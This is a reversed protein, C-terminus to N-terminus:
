RPIRSRDNLILLMTNMMSFTWHSCLLDQVEPLALRTVALLRTAWVLLRGKLSWEAFAALFALDDSVVVVTVCWSVQRLRRAQDVVHPLQTLTMNADQGDAAVEWVSIGSPAVLKNTIIAIFHSSPISLAQHVIIVSCSPQSTAELVAGPPWYNRSIYKFTEQPILPSSATVLRIFIVVQGLVAVTRSAAATRSVAVTRSVAATRSVVVTRSATATRSMAAPLPM